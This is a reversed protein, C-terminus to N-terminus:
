AKTPSPHRCQGILLELLAKCCMAAVRMLTVATSLCLVKEAPLAALQELRGQVISIAGGQGEGLRNASVLREAVEAIRESGDM